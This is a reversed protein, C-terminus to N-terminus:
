KLNNPLKQHDNCLIWVKLHNSYCANGKKLIYEPVDGPWESFHISDNPASINVIKKEPEILNLEWIGVAILLGGVVSAVVAMDYPRGFFAAEIAGGTVIKLFGFVAFYTNLNNETKSSITLTEVHTKQFSTDVITQINDNNEAFSFMSLLLIIFIAKM